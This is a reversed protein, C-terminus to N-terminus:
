EYNVYGSELIIADYSELNDIGITRIHFAYHLTYNANETSFDRQGMIM